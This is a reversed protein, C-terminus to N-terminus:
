KENNKYHKQIYKKTCLITCFTGVGEKNSSKQASVQNFRKCTNWMTFTSMKRFRFDSGYLDM